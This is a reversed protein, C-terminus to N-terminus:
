KRHRKVVEALMKFEEHRVSSKRWALGIERYSSEPLPYTKIRSNKLLASGDAMEPIFTIGLDSDVMQLLTHLSRASFRSVKETHRIRCASLAHNRLCHGDELLLVSERQLRNARYNQPDILKSDKRCALRFRDKFLKLTEVSKLEYPLALLIWDLEGSMLEGYIRLTVDEMLYLELKPFEKRISPLVKPLLFPM